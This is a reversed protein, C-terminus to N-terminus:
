ALKARLLYQLEFFPRIAGFALRDLAAIPRPVGTTRLRDITLGGTELLAKASRKTFFRLHTADLVGAPVYTWRGRLVLPAVVSYHRVNPVSAIVHGGPKLLGALRAMTTWPDVLHELVDLLLVLDISRAPISLSMREVDGVLVEDIQTAARRAVSEVLEVGCVWKARGASRLFALTQGAGCGIELVREAFAPLLPEIERRVWGFYSPDKRAYLEASVAAM